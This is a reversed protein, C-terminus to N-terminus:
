RDPKRWSAAIETGARSAPQMAYASWTLPSVITCLARRAPEPLKSWALDHGLATVPSIFGATKVPPRGFLRALDTTAYGRRVHGWEAIMDEDTPCFPALGRYYPFRWHQSPSTVLVFGGPRLVRMAEEAARADDTIHELVDFFTVLDFSADSFPLETADAVLFRVRPDRNVDALAHDEEVDITTVHAAPYLLRALGSRGGGVELVRGAPFDPAIRHIARMKERYFFGLTYPRSFPNRALFDGMAAKYRPPQPTIALPLYALGRVYGTAEPRYSDVAPRAILGACEAVRRAVARLTRKAFHKPLALFARRLNGGHRFRAFQVFLAAVHGRTYDHIQGALAAAERRHHHFVVSDPEYRCAWGEAILRYWFESDESCGAAGAGLREDFDGVLEFAVRRIAMNAGAGVKWVPMGEAVTARLFHGDYRAHECGLGLGGHRTEFAVQAPTQLEAPLVLGTAAMVDPEAFARRLPALWRPHVVVDDDVFALLDGTAERVATNRAASLGPRAEPLYRFAPFGEVVKRTSSARPANDVVLVDDPAEEAAAISRLCRDLAHPRDRTCIALTVSIGDHPERVVREDLQRLPQALAVVAHLDPPLAPELGPRPSAYGDGLLRRGVSPAVLRAVRASLETRTVSRHIHEYGVPLDRWWVVLFVPGSAADLGDRPLGEALDLHVIRRPQLDAM